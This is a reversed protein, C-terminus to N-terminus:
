QGRGAHLYGADGHKDLLFRVAFSCLGRGIGSKRREKASTPLLYNETRQKIRCLLAGMVMPGHRGLLASFAEESHRTIYDALLQEDSSATAALRRIHQLLSPVANGLM